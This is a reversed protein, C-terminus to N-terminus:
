AAPIRSYGSARVVKERETSRSDTLGSVKQFGNREFRFRKWWGYVQFKSSVASPHGTLSIHLTFNGRKEGSNRNAEGAWRNEIDGRLEILPIQGAGMRM